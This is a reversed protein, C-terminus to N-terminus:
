VFSQKVAYFMASYPFYFNKYAPPIRVFVPIYLEYSLVPTYLYANQTLAFLIEYVGKNLIDPFINHQIWFVLCSINLIIYGTGFIKTSYLIITALTNYIIAAKVIFFLLM